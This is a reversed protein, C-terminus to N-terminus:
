GCRLNVIVNSENVDINLRDEYYEMTVMQGPKIVRTLRAGAQVRAREVMEPTAAKGIAAPKAAEADCSTQPNHDPDSMPPSAITTCAALLIAALTTLGATPLTPRM